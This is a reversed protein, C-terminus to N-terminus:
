PDLALVPDQTAASAVVRRFEEYSLKKDGDADLAGFALMLKDRTGDEQHIRTMDGLGLLRAFDAEIGTSSRACRLAKIAEIVSVYGDGSVDVRNFIKRLADEQTETLAVEAVAETSAGRFIDLTRGLFTRASGGQASDDYCLNIEEPDAAEDAPEEPDAAGGAEGSAPAFQPKRAALKKAGVLSAFLGRRAPAPATAPPAPAPATTPRAAPAPAPQSEDVFPKPQAARGKSFLGRKKAAAPAPAPSGTTPKRAAPKAASQKKPPAKVPAKAATKTSKGYWKSRTGAKTARAAPAPAAAAPGTAVGQYDLFATTVPGFSKWNALAEPTAPYAGHKKRLAGRAPAGYWTRMPEFVTNIKGTPDANKAAEVGRKVAPSASSADEEASQADTPSKSAAEDSQAARFMNMVSSALSRTSGQGSVVSSLSPADGATSSSASWSRSISSPRRPTTAQLETCIDAFSPRADPDQAWAREMLSSLDRPMSKPVELRQEKILKYLIQQPKLGAWPIGRDYIEWLVIAYSYVDSKETFTNDEFLEPAMFAPTGAVSDRMTATTTFTKLEECRSLGFDTMKCRGDHTLLVNHTKLDRHEIKCSYLHAMGLAVDSTWVRQFEPTIVEDRDLAHRLSGGPLYEMVLGLFSPNTTLVGLVQVTRPHRLRIMIGLETKFLSLMKTRKIAPVGVISIKKLCVLEGGLYGRYVAGQGGEAFPQEEVDELELESQGLAAEKMRKVLERSKTKRLAGGLEHVNRRISANRENGAEIAALIRKDRAAGEQVAAM